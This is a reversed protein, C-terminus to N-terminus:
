WCEKWVWNGLLAEKGPVQQRGNPTQRGHHGVMGQPSGMRGENREDEDVEGSILSGLFRAQRGVSLEDGNRGWIKRLGLRELRIECFNRAGAVRSFANSV